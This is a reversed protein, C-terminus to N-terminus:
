PSPHVLHKIPNLTTANAAELDADHRSFLIFGVQGYDAYRETLRMLMMSGRVDRVIYRNFDGFLISKASAEVTAMDQNVTYPYGLISDPEKVAIGPLWLPRNQSDVLKKILKVTTDHMMFRATARYAPDLSHLLEVLDNYAVANSAAATYGAYSATVVGNPQGSGTGTTFHLNTGRGLRTGFQKAVLADIDLGSDQILELPVLAMTRYMYANLTMQGFTFATETSQTNEAVLTAKNGTDDLTPWNITNGGDTTLVQAVERVGGFAKLAEALRALFDTPILYGGGTTTTTQAARKEPAGPAPQYGARLIKQEDPELYQSGYRLYNRFAASYAKKTEDDGLSGDGPQGRTGGEGGPQERGAKRERVQALEAEADLLKEERDIRSKLEDARKMADDFKTEDEKTIEAKGDVIKRADAVLQARQERLAKIDTLPAPM